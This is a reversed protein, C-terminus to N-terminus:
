KDDARQPLADWGKDPRCSRLLHMLPEPPCHKLHCQGDLQLPSVVTSFVGLKSGSIQYKVIVPVDM